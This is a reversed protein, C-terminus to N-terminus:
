VEFISLNPRQPLITLVGHNWSRYEAEIPKGQGLHALDRDLPASRYEAELPKGQGLYVLDRDLPAHPQHLPLVQSLPGETGPKPQRQPEQSALEWDLNWPSGDHALVKKRLAHALHDRHLKLLDKVRNTGTPHRRQKVVSM